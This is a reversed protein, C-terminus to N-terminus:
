FTKTGSFYCTKKQYADIQSYCMKFASPVHKTLKKNFCKKGCIIFRSGSPIKHMKSLLHICSLCSFEEENNKLGFLFDHTNNQQQLTNNQQVNNIDNVQQYTNSVTSLLGLEQKLVQVYYKNCMFAIKNAAKDIPCM